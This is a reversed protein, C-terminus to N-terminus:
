DAHKLMIFVKQIVSTLRILGSGPPLIAYAAHMHLRSSSKSPPHMRNPAVMCASLVRSTGPEHGEVM